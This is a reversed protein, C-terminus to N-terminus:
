KMVPPNFKGGFMLAAVEADSMGDVAKLAKQLPNLDDQLNESGGQNSLTPLRKANKKADDEATKLQDEVSEMSQATFADYAAKRAEVTAYAVLGLEERLDLLRNVKMNRIDGQLSTSQKIAEEKENKADKLEETLKSIQDKSSQLEDGLKKIEDKVTQLEDAVPAPPNNTVAAAAAAQEDAIRKAEVAAAAAADDAVKKADAAIKEDAIRKAEIAAAEAAKKQEDTLQNELAPEKPKQESLDVIGSGGVSFAKKGYVKYLADLSTSDSLKVMKRTSDNFAYLSLLRDYTEDSVKQSDSITVDKYNYVQLTQDRSDGSVERTQVVAFVDAPNNVYSLEDWMMNGGIWYALQKEGTEYDEYTNGFRHECRGDVLWDRTCISCVMSDTEGGVSVTMYRGNLVKAVADPDTTNVLNRIYGLGRYSYDSNRVSANQVQPMLAAPITRYVSGVNRGVPDRHSDHHVQVPKPFPKTWSDVSKRLKDDQYFGYNGNVICSHTVDIESLLSVKESTNASDLVMNGVQDKLKHSMRNVSDKISFAELIKAFKAM